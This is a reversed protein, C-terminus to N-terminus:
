DEVVILLARYGSAHDLVDGPALAQGDRAPQANIQLGTDGGLALTVSTGTAVLSATGPLSGQGGAIPHAHNDVLVHTPAPVAAVRVVTQDPDYREEAPSAAAVAPAIPVSRNLV